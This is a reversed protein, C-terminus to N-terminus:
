LSRFRPRGCAHRARSEWMPLGIVRRACGKGVDAWSEGGAPRHYFKGLHARLEAQDPRRERIGSRTLRDLVGFERERLGEDVAFSVRGALGASELALRATECARVYPSSYVM